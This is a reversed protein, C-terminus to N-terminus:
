LETAITLRTRPPLDVDTLPVGPDCREILLAFDESAHRFLRVAGEGAWWRLAAAEGRAERHPFSLKLVADRGDATSAAVVYSGSGGAYREGLSLDWEDVYRDVLDPVRLKWEDEALSM